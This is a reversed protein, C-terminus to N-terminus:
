SDVRVSATYQVHMHISCAAAADQVMKIFLMLMNLHMLDGEPDSDSGFDVVSGHHCYDIGWSRTQGSTSQFHFALQKIGAQLISWSLITWSWTSTVLPSHVQWLAPEWALPVWYLLRMHWLVGRCIVLVKKWGELIDIGSASTTLLVYCVCM